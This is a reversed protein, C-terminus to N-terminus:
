KDPVAVKSLFAAASRKGEASREPTLMRALADQNVEAMKGGQGAALTFWKHVEVGAQSAGQGNISILGRDFLAETM